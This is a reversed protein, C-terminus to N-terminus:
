RSNVETQKHYTKPSHDPSENKKLWKGEPLLRNISEVVEKKEKM